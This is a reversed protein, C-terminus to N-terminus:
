LKGAEHPKKIAHASGPLPAPLFKRFAVLNDVGYIQMHFSPHYNTHRFLGASALLLCM